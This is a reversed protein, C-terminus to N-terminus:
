PTKKEELTMEIQLFHSRAIGNWCGAGNDVFILLRFICHKITLRFSVNDHLMQLLNELNLSEILNFLLQVKAYYISRVAEPSIELKQFNCSGTVIGKYLCVNIKRGVKIPGKRIKLGGDNNVDAFDIRSGILLLFVCLFDLNSFILLLFVSNKQLGEILKVKNSRCRFRVHAEWLIRDYMM